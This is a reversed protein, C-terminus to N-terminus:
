WLIRGAEQQPAMYITCQVHVTKYNSYMIRKYPIYQATPIGYIAEWPMFNHISQIQIVNVFANLVNLVSNFEFAFMETLSGTENQSSFMWISQLVRSILNMYLMIAITFNFISRLYVNKDETRICHVSCM